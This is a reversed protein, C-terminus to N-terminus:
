QYLGPCGTAIQFWDSHQGCTKKKKIEIEFHVFLIVVIFYVPSILSLITSLQLDLKTIFCYGLSHLNHLETWVTLQYYLITCGCATPATWTVECSPCLSCLDSFCNLLQYFGQLLQVSKVPWYFYDTLLVDVLKASSLDSTKPIIAVLFSNKFCLWLVRILLIPSVVPPFSVICMVRFM